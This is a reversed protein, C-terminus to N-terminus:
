QKHKQKLEETMRKIEPALDGMLQQGVAMSRQILLPMKELMAQGAPSKYFEVIAGIEQETFTDSYVKVFVPKAKDWSLRDSVLALIKQQLEGAAQREDAPIDMKSLQAAQMTKIQDTMQQIMRDAHTLRIMEEIKANKSAEDALASTPPWFLFLGLAVGISKM